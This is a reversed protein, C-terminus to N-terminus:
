QHQSTHQTPHPPPPPPPEGGYQLTGPPQIVFKYGGRSGGASSEYEARASRGPSGSAHTKKLKKSAHYPTPPPQISGPRLPPKPQTATAPPLSGASSSEPPEKALERLPSPGSLQPSPTGGGTHPSAGSQSAITTTLSTSTHSFQKTASLDQVYGVMYTARSNGICQNLVLSSPNTLFHRSDQHLNAPIPLIPLSLTAHPVQAMLQRWSGAKDTYPIIISAGESFAAQPLFCIQDASAGQCRTNGLGVRERGEPYSMADAFVSKHDNANVLIDTWKSHRWQVGFIRAATDDVWVNNSFPDAVFKGLTPWALNSFILSFNMDQSRETRAKRILADIIGNLDSKQSM